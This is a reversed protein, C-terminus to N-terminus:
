SRYFRVVAQWAIDPAGITGDGTVQLVINGGSVFGNIASHKIGNTSFSPIVDGESDITVVGGATKNITAGRLWFAREDGTARAIVWAFLLTSISNPPTSTIIDLTAGGVTSGIGVFESILREQAM